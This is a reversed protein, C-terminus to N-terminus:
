KWGKIRDSSTYGMNLNKKKQRTWTNKTNAFSTNKELSKHFRLRVKHLYKTHQQFIKSIIFNKIYTSYEQDGVLM